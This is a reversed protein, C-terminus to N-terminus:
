DRQVIREDDSESRKSRHDSQLMRGRYACDTRLGTRRTQTQESKATVGLALLFSTPAVLAEKWFDCCHAPLIESQQWCSKMRVAKV